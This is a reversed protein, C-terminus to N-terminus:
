SVILKDKEELGRINDSLTNKKSHKSIRSLHLIMNMVGNCLITTNKMEFFTDENLFKLQDTSLDRQKNNKFM